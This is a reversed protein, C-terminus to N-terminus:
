EGVASGMSGMIFYSDMAGIAIKIGNIRGYGTIIAEKLDTKRQIGKIKEEYKPFELPDRGMLNENIERFTDEDCVLNIRAYAGMREYAGCLPCIYLNKLLNEKLVLKECSKCKHYMGEPVSPKAKVQTVDDLEDTDLTFYKRRKKFIAM